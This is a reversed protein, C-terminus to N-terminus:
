PQRCWPAESDARFRQWHTGESAYVQQTRRAIPRVWVPSLHVPPTFTLLLELDVAVGSTAGGRSALGVGIGGFGWGAQLRRPALLSSCTARARTSLLAGGHLRLRARTLSTGSSHDQTAQTGGERGRM